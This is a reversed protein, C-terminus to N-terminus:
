FKPVCNGNPLKAQGEPCHIEPVDIANRNDLDVIPKGPSTKNISHTLNPNKITITTSLTAEKFPPKNKDENLDKSTNNHKSTTKTLIITNEKPVSPQDTQQETETSCNQTKLRYTNSSSEPSFTTSPDDFTEFNDPYFRPPFGEFRNGDLPEEEDPDGTPSLADQFGAARIQNNKHDVQRDEVFIKCEGYVKDSFVPVVLNQPPSPSPPAFNKQVDLKARDPPATKTYSIFELHRRPPRIERRREGQSPSKYKPVEIPLFSDKIVAELIRSNKNRLNEDRIYVCCEGHMYDGNLSIRRCEEQGRSLLVIVSLIVIIVAFM